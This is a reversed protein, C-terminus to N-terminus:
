QAAEESTTEETSEEEFESLQANKAEEASSNLKDYEESLMDYKPKLKDYKNKLNNNKEVLEENQNIVDTYAVDIKQRVYVSFILVATFVVLFAALICNLLKINKENRSFLRIKDVYIKFDFSKIYESTEEEEVSRAVSAKEGDVALDTDILKKIYFLKDKLFAIFKKLHENEKKDSM